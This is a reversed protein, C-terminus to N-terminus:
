CMSQRRWRNAARRLARSTVARESPASTWGMCLASGAVYGQVNGAVQEERGPTEDLTNPMPLRTEVLREFGAAFSRGEHRCDRVRAGFTHWREASAGKAVCAFKRMGYAHM